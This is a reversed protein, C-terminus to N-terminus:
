SGEAALAADGERFKPVASATGQRLAHPRVHVRRGFLSGEAETPIVSFARVYFMHGSM